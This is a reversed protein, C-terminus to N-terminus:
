LLQALNSNLNSVQGGDFGARAATRTPDQSHQRIKLVIWQDFDNVGWV